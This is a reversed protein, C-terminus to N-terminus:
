ASFYWVLAIVAAVLFFFLFSVWGRKHASALLEDDESNRKTTSDATQKSEMAIAELSSPAKPVSAIAASAAPPKSPSPSGKSPAEDRGKKNSLALMLDKPVRPAAPIAVNSAAANRTRVRIAGSSRPPPVSSKPLRRESARRKEIVSTGFTTALWEGLKLRSALLGAGALYGELDRQFAGATPYREDRNKALARKVIRELEEQHPLGHNPIPPIDARRAQELLPVDGRLRYLRRGSLLEWLIIGAAFVDARADLADARAHEPSMYSAKGKLAENKDASVVDHAHAIGFDCLKVEGDYSILINSPSVDRHVLGLSTGTDTTCRHAYDLGELVDAVIGLAHEPPLPADRDTCQRLLANLDFGEIYEMAIYLRQDTKASADRSSDDTTLGDGDQPADRGLDLVQVIHSHSLRAALKAEHILMDSFKPDEAFAPLILKVVALKTAGLATEFRALFLEAMGGRGIPEFLTYRGFRRPLSASLLLSSSSQSEPAPASAPVQASGPRRSAPVEGRSGPGDSPPQPPTELPALSM